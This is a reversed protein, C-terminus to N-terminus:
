LSSTVSAEAVSIPGLLSQVSFLACGFVWVAGVAKSGVSMLESLLVFHKSLSASLHM